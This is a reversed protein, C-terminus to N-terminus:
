RLVILSVLRESVFAPFNASLDIDLPIRGFDTPVNHIYKSCM